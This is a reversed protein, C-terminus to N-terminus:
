GKFAAAFEGALGDEAEAPDKAIVEAIGDLATQGAAFEGAAFDDTAFYDGRRKSEM